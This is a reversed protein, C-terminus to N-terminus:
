DGQVRHNAIYALLPDMHFIKKKSMRTSGPMPRLLEIDCGVVALNEGRLWNRVFVFSANLHAPLLCEIDHEIEDKIDRVLANIPAANELAGVIARLSLDDRGVVVKARDLLNDLADFNEQLNKRTFFQSGRIKFFNGGGPALLNGSSKGAADACVLWYVPAHEVLSERLRAIAIVITAISGLYDRANACATQLQEFRRRVDAERRRAELAEKQKKWSGVGFHNAGCIGGILGRGEKGDPAVYSVVFGNNNPTHCNPLGCPVADALDVYEELIEVLKSGRPIDHGAPFADEGPQVEVDSM